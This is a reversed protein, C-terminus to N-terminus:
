GDNKGYRVKEYEVKLNSIDRDGNAALVNEIQGPTSSDSVPLGKRIARRTKDYFRKRIRREYGTGFDLNRTNFKRKEPRIDEITDILKDDNDELKRAKAFKPLTKIIMRIMNLALIILGIVIVVFLIRGLIELVPDDAGSGQEYLEAFPDVTEENIEPTSEKFLFRFLRFFGLIGRALIMLYKSAFEYPFIALVGLAVAVVAILGAVTKYNQKQLMSSSKSIKHISHYYRTDFVALQRMILFLVAIILAHILITRAFNPRGSAAYLIYGMVHLFAPFVILEQDSGHFSPKIRYIISFLTVAILTVIFYFKNAISNGYEFAPVNIILLFFVGSVMLHSIIILFFNNIGIRRLFTHAIALLLFAFPPFMSVEIIEVYFNVITVCSLITLAMILSLLMEVILSDRVTRIVRGQETKTTKTTSKIDGIKTM